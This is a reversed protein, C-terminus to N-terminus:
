AGAQGSIEATEGDSPGSSSPAEDPTARIEEIDAVIRGGFATLIRRAAVAGRGAVRGAVVTLSLAPLAPVALPATGVEDAAEGMRDRLAQAALRAAAEDDFVAALVRDPSPGAAPALQQRRRSRSAIGDILGVDRELMVWSGGVRACPLRGGACWQRLLEPHRGTRVAVQSLTLYTSEPGSM